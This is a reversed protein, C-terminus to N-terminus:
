CFSRSLLLTSFKHARGVKCYSDRSDQIFNFFFVLLYSFCIVSKDKAWNINTSWKLFSFCPALGYRMFRSPDFDPIGPPGYPDFRAGPPVGRNLKISGVTLVFYCLCMYLCLSLSVTTPGQEFPTASQGFWLLASWKTRCNWISMYQSFFISMENERGRMDALLWIRQCVIFLSM